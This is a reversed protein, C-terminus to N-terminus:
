FVAPNRTHAGLRPGQHIEKNCKDCFSSKCQVCDVTRRAKCCELCFTSKGAPEEDSDSGEDDEGEEGGDEMALAAVVAPSAKVTAKAKAANPNEEDSWYEVDTGELMAKLIDKNKPDNRDIMNLKDRIRNDTLERRSSVMVYGSEFYAGKKQFQDTVAESFVKWHHSSTAKALVPVQAGQWLIRAYRPKARRMKEALNTIAQASEPVQMLRALVFMVEDDKLHKRFLKHPQALLDDKPSQGTELVRIVNGSQPVYSVIIWSLASDKQEIPDLALKDVADLVKKKDEWELEAKGAATTNSRIAREKPTTLSEKQRTGTIKELLEARTMEDRTRCAVDLALKGLTDHVTTLYTPIAEKAKAASMRAVKMGVWSAFVTFTKVQYGDDLGVNFVFVFVKDDLLWKDNWEDSLAGEGKETVTITKFTKGSLECALFASSTKDAVIHSLSAKLDSLGTVGEGSTDTKMQWGPDAQPVFKTTAAKDASGSSTIKSNNPTFPEALARAPSPAPILGKAKEDVPTKAPEPTVEVKLAVAGNSKLVDSGNPGVEEDSWYEVDTGELMAKLIDKNKPDNRDIMNLKDRIRNDTLERRSSVMVYGSEFYAGKKQFQDTVAESFVKWHHSSTAKALVPVQAGQWLIRAYRPKARRMKEALNTIAQASEPVQMLRALVFMVEDDKLHKRFLKHPQALLDDKPSQGTELVRIVNGSEPVYSVIIWSLASEEQEIPDLALKDVADLVKKKDEWELEAKGAATANSRIARARPTTLSEKQRTGTIKELLEARTMEDRTRCAVDLALKGLTDHVTTLYTPIAEKAKAASMRAVKMGVWSAFVTFTKVQYGDDLGVNFVFVFVKDDLLWKDNWEDSLAGEGKETVTITKFTKGSLECALFASSTKDAVIHSLSAKLDSLGTVGEGSTDTKMQWGPDAQPVFKTTAAKDASGSSTIKANNPTFPEPLARAPSSAPADKAKEEVPAPEPELTVEVKLVATGHPGEEEDSWYEVDTGELMAKLIDKNKPDNRDIMNLKDRIRNDTLERRSSVMVYGSEFYAGKKQFQDTVAESFVKWHHSSTAKALVPVQAGQWLIRAYRPKARRMKEALNTIAQASEPVQMLRALVFMVEDDKLHKRFLKHPQALLDDKPSQGTELVRIVNGSESVYSVIIWSLASDKQEIPDLALKDVADLVKKKDEWELEAKGQVSSTSRIARTQKMMLSKRAKQRTGTIKELLEAQAMEDRTRCAVDLALKGLTDRVVTLYTPIAEKAKAASMRAVKMGVWSAFVTFTKVQYGDDLGINFVFVFVKDDLLWKDNWEDSLADEGKETITITKFTKGSLECALFASSTKDAVVYSLSAKLEDLGTVGAGSTDTKMQWGPDAQPVFKSTAAKDATGSSTINANNPTFPEPLARVPGPASDKAKEEVPGTEEPELTITIAVQKLVPSGNPGEEEDSWYEVDTGELMAKLIDKNKPDNRDIMNLKDRIRNDTLERRSSVMVYGSEFYAGKKQFQDTVAESFVKWHHSSTAKALVPVQAGQWLIRAYRPKARRMKEALNTIAQASEPVQMLRALVFMVEDDKLHKRFLKHPQALLDDKPSQGTELVRIVNGSEPAYSVIIWSLATEKQEIPDLALKEVADLVKKQDEWELEAKGKASTNSRIARTQKVMLSKRAKQRSGTIKELLEAQSMEDRIRCSVDLALKGLTDRVITLYTPSAENARAVDMRAIKIGIWSAFVTFTKVQYGDDLGVNFVFIFVKDGLLWKDSWEDSLAGEGKETVTITKFTKGSLECALFASSTKDAVIHSLSAKLQDLGTFDKGSTDTKMEWSSASKPSAVFAKPKKASRRDDDDDDDDKDPPEDDDDDDDDDDEDGEIQQTDKMQSAMSQLFGLNHHSEGSKAEQKAVGLMPSVTTTVKPKEQTAHTDEPKAQQVPVPSPAKASAAKASPAKTSEPRFTEQIAPMAPKPSPPKAKLAQNWLASERKDKETASLPAVSLVVPNSEDEEGREIFRDYEAQTIFQVLNMEVQDPTIHHWRSWGKAHRFWDGDRELEQVMMGQPLVVPLVESNASPAVHIRIGGKYSVKVFEAKKMPTASRDLDPISKSSSDLTATPTAPKEIGALLNKNSFHRETLGNEVHKAGNTEKNPTAKPSPSKESSGAEADKKKQVVDAPANPTEAPKAVEKTSNPLSKQPPEEPSKKSGCAGM